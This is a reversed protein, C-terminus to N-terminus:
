TRLVRVSVVRMVGCLHEEHGLGVGLVVTTNLIRGVHIHELGVHALADVALAEDVLALPAHGDGVLVDRAGHCAGHYVMCWVGYVMCWVGYVM